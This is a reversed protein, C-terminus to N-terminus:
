VSQTSCTDNWSGFLLRNFSDVGKVIRSELTRLESSPLLLAWYVQMSRDAHARYPEMEEEDWGGM